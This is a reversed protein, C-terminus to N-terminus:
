FPTEEELQYNAHQYDEDYDKFLTIEPIFTVIFKTLGINWSLAVLMALPIGMTMAIVIPMPIDKEDSIWLWLWTWSTFGLIIGFTVLGALINM